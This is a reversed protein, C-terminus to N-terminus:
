AGQELRDQECSIGRMLGAGLRWHPHLNPNHKTRPSSAGTALLLLCLALRTM